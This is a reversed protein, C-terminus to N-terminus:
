LGVSRWEYIGGTDALSVIIAVHIACQRYWLMSHWGPWRYCRLSWSCLVAGTRAKISHDASMRSHFFNWFVKEVISESAAFRSQLCIQEKTPQVRRPPITAVERGHGGSLHDNKFFILTTIQVFARCATQCSVGKGTGIKHFETHWQGWFMSDSRTGM